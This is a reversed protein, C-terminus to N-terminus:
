VRHWNAERVIRDRLVNADIVGRRAFHIIRSAIAQRARTDHVPVHLTSCADEFARGMANTVDTDFVAENHPYSHTPMARGGTQLAARRSLEQMRFILRPEFNRDNIRVQRSPSADLCPAFRM